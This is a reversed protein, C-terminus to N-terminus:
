LLGGTRGDRFRWGDLPTHGAVTRDQNFGGRPLDRPVEDITQQNWDDTAVRGGNNAGTHEVKESNGLHRGEHQEQEERDQGDSGGDSEM